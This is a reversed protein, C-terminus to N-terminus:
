IEFVFVIKLSLCVRNLESIGNRLNEVTVVIISFGKKGRNVAIQVGVGISGSVSVTKM